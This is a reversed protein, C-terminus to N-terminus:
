AIRCYRERPVALFSSFGTVVSQYTVHDYSREAATEHSSTFVTRKSKKLDVNHHM